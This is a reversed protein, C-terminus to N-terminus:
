HLTFNVRFGKCASVPSGSRTAPTFSLAERAWTLAAGDLRASGSSSEITPKGELRGSPGVCVRVIAVGTEQLPVSERPYFEDPSRVASFKLPTAPIGVVTHDDTAPTGTTAVVTRTEPVLAMAPKEETPFQPDPAIQPIVARDMAHEDPKIIPRREVVPPDVRPPDIPFIEVITRADPIVRMAMLATIVLAHLGITVAMVMQRGTLMSAQQLPQTIASV